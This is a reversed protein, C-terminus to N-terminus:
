PWTITDFITITEHKTDCSMWVMGQCRPSPPAQAPVQLYSITAKRTAHMGNRDGSHGTSKEGSRQRELCGPSPQQFLSRSTWSPNNKGPMGKASVM